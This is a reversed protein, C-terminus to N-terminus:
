AQSQGILGGSSQFIGSSFGGSQSSGGFLGVGQSSLGQLPGQAGSNQSSSGVNATMSASVGHGSGDFSPGGFSAGTVFQRQNQLIVGLTQHNQDQQNSIRDLASVVERSNGTDRILEPEPTEVNQSGLNRFPGESADQFIGANSSEGSMPGFVSGAANFLNGSETGVPNGFISQSGYTESEGAGGSFISPADAM